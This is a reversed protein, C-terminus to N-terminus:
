SAQQASLTGLVAGAAPLSAPATCGVAWQRCSRLHPDHMRAPVRLVIRCLLVSPDLHCCCLYPEYVWVSKNLSRFGDNGDKCLEYWLWRNACPMCTKTVQGISSDQAKVPQKCVLASPM